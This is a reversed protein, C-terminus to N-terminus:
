KNKRFFNRYWIDAVVFVMLGVVFVCFARGMIPHAWTEDIRTLLRLWIYSAWGMM